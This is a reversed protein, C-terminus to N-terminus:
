KKWRLKIILRKIAEGVPTFDGANWVSPFSDPRAGRDFIARIQSRLIRDDSAVAIFQAYSRGFLEEPRLLYDLHELLRSNNGAEESRRASIDEPERGTRQGGRRKAM